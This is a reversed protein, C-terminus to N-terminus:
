ERPVVNYRERLEAIPVDFYDQAFWDVSLDRNVKTGRVYARVMKEPDVRLKDISAVPSLRIGLHFQAVVGLVTFFPDYNQFGAQFSVVEVEEEPTTDYDGLVHMCDHFVVPEPAAGKEGPMGFGNQDMYEYYGRGLSGPACQKTKRYRAAIERNEFGAFAAIVQALCRLGKKALHQEFRKGVFSRRAIDFRFLALRGEVVRQLEDVPKDDIDFAKAYDRIITLEASSAETDILAAMVASRLIRDRYEGPPVISALEKGDIPALADVDFDTHLVHSQVAEIFGRELDHLEGDALVVTKLARLGAHAIERPPTILEM